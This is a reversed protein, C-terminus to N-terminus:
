QQLRWFSYTGANTLVPLLWPHWPLMIAQIVSPLPYTKCCPAFSMAGPPQSIHGTADAEPKAAHQHHATAAAITTTCATFQAPHPQGATGAAESRGHDSALSTNCFGYARCSSRGLRWGFAQGASPSELILKAHKCSIALQLCCNISGPLVQPKKSVDEDDLTIRAARVLGSFTDVVTSIEKDLEALTPAM